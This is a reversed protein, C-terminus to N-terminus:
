VRWIAILALLPPRQIPGGTPRGTPRWPRRWPPNSPSSPPDGPHTASSGGPLLCVVSLLCCLFKSGPGGFGVCGPTYYAAQCGRTRIYM